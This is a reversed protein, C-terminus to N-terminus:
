SDKGYWVRREEYNPTATGMQFSPLKSETEMTTLAKM